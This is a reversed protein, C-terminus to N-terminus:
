GGPDSTSVALMFGGLGIALYSLRIGVEPQALRKTAILSLASLLLIGTGVGVHFWLPANRILSM